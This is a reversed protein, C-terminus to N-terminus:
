FIKVKKTSKFQEQPNNIPPKKSLSSCSVNIEIKVEDM